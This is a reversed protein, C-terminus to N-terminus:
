IDPSFVVVIQSETSRKHHCDFAVVEVFLLTAGFEM